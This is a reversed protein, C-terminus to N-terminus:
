GGVSGAISATAKVSAEVDLLADTVALVVPPICAAKIDTVAEVNGSFEATVAIMGELRSKFALVVGLNAELTAQLKGAAQIDAAGKFAIVVSPPTCEAKASVSADCNADCKAEVKCGGELKGGECKLPEFDAKCEGDCKVSAEASGTCSGKCEGKCSGECKAGPAVVECTGECTGKCTGDAQAGDGVGAKATCTGECKGKCDVGATATCSGTCAASCSGECKLSAGAKATCEGKCAVELSGGKCVPPNAKVDCKAGGSCQAQCNAKASVSAQCKPAEAKVVIEGGVKAKVTGIAKVAAITEPRGFQHPRGSGDSDLDRDYSYFGPGALPLEVSVRPDVLGGAPPSGASGTPPRAAGARILAAETLPGVIGDVALGSRTQFSRIASRTLTGVIGDLALQVGLIRNLSSQIWIAYARSSRDVASEFELTPALEFRPRRGEDFSRSPGNGIRRVTGARFRFPLLEFVAQEM